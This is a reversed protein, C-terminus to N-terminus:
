PNSSNITIKCTYVIISNEDSVNFDKEGYSFGQPYTPVWVIARTGNDQIMVYKETVQVNAIVFVAKELHTGEVTIEDGEKATLPTVKTVTVKADESKNDDSCSSVAVVTGIAGVLAFLFLKKM